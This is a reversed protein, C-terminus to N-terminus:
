KSCGSCSLSFFPVDIVEKADLVEKLFFQGSAICVQFMSGAPFLVEKEPNPIGCLSVSNEIDASKTNVDTVIKQTFAYAQQSGTFNLLKTTSLAIPFQMVKNLNGEFFIKAKSLQETSFNWNRFVEINPQKPLKKIAQNLHHVYNKIEDSNNKQLIQSTYKKGLNFISSTLALSEDQSLNFRQELCPRLNKYNESLKSFTM